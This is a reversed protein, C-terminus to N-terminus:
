VIQSIRFGVLQSVAVAVTTTRGAGMSATSSVPETAFPAAPPVATGFTSTLSVSFVAGAVRAVTESACTEVVLGLTVRSGAM